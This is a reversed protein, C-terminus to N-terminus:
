VTTSCRRSATCPESRRCSVGNAIASCGPLKKARRLRVAGGLQTALREADVHHTAPLVALFFGQPGRLLVSKAVQSGPIHLFRARKQATFAPPHVITEFKVFQETLFQPVRM